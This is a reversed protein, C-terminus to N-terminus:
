SRRIPVPYALHVLDAHMRSALQPLTRSYWYNRSFSTNNCDAIALDVSASSLSARFYKQQWAGILLTARTGPLDCVAKAHNIAHRCIGTLQTFRSVAPILIHM